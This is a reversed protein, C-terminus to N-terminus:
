LRRYSMNGGFYWPCVEESLYSFSLFQYLIKM